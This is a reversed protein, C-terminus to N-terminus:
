LLLLLLLLFFLLLLLLLLLLPPAVKQSSHKRKRASEVVIGESGSSHSDDDDAPVFATLKASKVSSQPKNAAKQNTNTGFGTLVLGMLHLVNPEAAVALGYKEQM